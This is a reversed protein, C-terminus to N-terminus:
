KPSTGPLQTPITVPFQNIIHAAHIVAIGPDNKNGAGFSHAASQMDWGSAPSIVRSASRTGTHELSQAPGSSTRRKSITM